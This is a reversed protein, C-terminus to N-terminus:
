QRFAAIVQESAPDLGDLRARGSVLEGGILLHQLYDGNDEIVNLEVQPFARRYRQLIDSLVYGAVLSTVGLSLRGTLPGTEEAFATRATAVDALIQRAHRLFASGKHTIELGRPLRDFLTIGLDDELARIAEITQGFHDAGGDALDDRDVSTVVVHGLGLKGVAEARDRQRDLAQEGEGLSHLNEEFAHFGGVVLLALSEFLFQDRFRGVGGIGGRLGFRFDSPLFM